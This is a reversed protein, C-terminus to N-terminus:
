VEYTAISPNSGLSLYRWTRHDYQANTISKTLSFHPHSIRFAAGWSGISFNKPKLQWQAPCSQALEPLNQAALLGGRTCM